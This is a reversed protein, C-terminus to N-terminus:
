YKRTEVSFLYPFLEENTKMIKDERIDNSKEKCKLCISESCQKWNCCVKTKKCQLCKQSSEM